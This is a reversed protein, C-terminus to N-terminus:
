PRRASRAAPTSRWSPGYGANGVSTIVRVGSKTAVLGINAAATWTTGLNKWPAFGRGTGHTYEPAVSIAGAKQIAIVPTTGDFALYGFSAFYPTTVTIPPNQVGERVEM